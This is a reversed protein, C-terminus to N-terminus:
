EALIEALSATSDLRAGLLKLGARDAMDDLSGFREEDDSYAYVLLLRSHQALKKRLRKVLEPPGELFASAPVIALDFVRQAWIADSTFIDDSVVTGGCERLLVEARKAKRADVEIGFPIASSGSVIERLLLGNGCGLDVVLAGDGAALVGRALRVIPEHARIM